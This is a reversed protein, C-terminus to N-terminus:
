PHSRLKRYIADSVKLVRGLKSDLEECVCEEVQGYSMKTFDCYSLFAHLVEHRITGITMDATHFYMKRQGIEHNYITVAATKPWRNDFERESLLEVHWKDTNITVTFKKM